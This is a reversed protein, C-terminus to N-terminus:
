ERKEFCEHEMRIICTSAKRTSSSTELLKGSKSFCVERWVKPDSSRLVEIRNENPGGGMKVCSTAPWRPPKSKEAM